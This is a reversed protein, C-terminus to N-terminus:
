VVLTEPLGPLESLDFSADAERLHISLDEVAEIPLRQYLHPFRQGAEAVYDWQLARGLRKEVVHLILLEDQEAFFNEIVLPLQSKTSFHIVGQTKLTPHAYTGENLAKEWQNQDAIHYIM